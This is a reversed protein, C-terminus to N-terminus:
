VAAWAAAAAKVIERDYQKTADNLAAYPILDPHIRRFNDRVAGHQWGGLRREVMWREHELEALEELDAPTAAFDPHEIPPQAPHCALWGALDFGSSALKAPLHVVLRRNSERHEESLEEWPLNAAAKTPAARRYADHFRRPLADPDDDFLGIAGAFDVSAGFAVLGGSTREAEAVPQDPLAGGASLRTFIPGTSWGERRVLAQLSIAAALSRQDSDLCVYSVTVPDAAQAAALAARPLMRADYDFGPDIFGIDVSAALDPCRLALSAEVERARPEVITIRPKGLFSTLSSLLLDTMAAEGGRGFGIILAHIRAQGLGRAILFPPYRWHLARLALQTESVIRVGAINELEDMREAFWPDACNMIVPVGPAAQRLDRVVAILRPEDAIAAVCRKARAAGFTEALALDWRRNVVLAGTVPAEPAESDTIWTTTVHRRGAAEAAARAVRHGGIILLHNRRFRGGLEAVQRSLLITLAKTGVAAFFAVGLWRAVELRWDHNFTRSDEYFTLLTVGGLSRYFVDSWTMGLAAAQHSWGWVAFLVSGLALAALLASLNLLRAM